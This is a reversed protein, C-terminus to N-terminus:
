EQLVGFAVLQQGFEYRGLRIQDTAGFIAGDTDGGVRYGTPVRLERGNIISSPYDFIKVTRVTGRDVAFGYALGDEV